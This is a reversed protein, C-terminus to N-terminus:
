KLCGNAFEDKIETIKVDLSDNAACDICQFVVKLYGKTHGEWLNRGTDFEQEVLVEAVTGVLPELVDLRCRQMADIMLESRAKKIDGPVKNMMGYALTGKRPSFKFVHVKMFGISSVFSLGQTFEEDTEGPFGVIIDTTLAVEKFHKKLLIVADAFEGTTYRRKMRKLVSDCGSQLSM